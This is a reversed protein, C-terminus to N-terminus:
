SDGEFHHTFWEFATIQAGAGAEHEAQFWEAHDDIESKVELGSVGLQVLEREVAAIWKEYSM